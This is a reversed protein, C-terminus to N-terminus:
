NKQIHKLQEILAANLPKSMFKKVTAYSLARRKDSEDISSTLVVVNPKHAIHQYADLFDWGSKVPFNLDLLILYNEPNPLHSVHAIATDIDEFVEISLDPAYKSLMRISLTNTIRDDDILIIQQYADTEQNTQDQAMTNAEQAINTYIYMNSSNNNEQKM